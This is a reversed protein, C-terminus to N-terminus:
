ILYQILIPIARYLLVAVFCVLYTPLLWPRKKQMTSDLQSVGMSLLLWAFGDVNAIMYTVFCFILLLENRYNDLRWATKLKIPWTSLWLFSVALLVNLSINWWAAIQALFKYQAPELMPPYSASNGNVQQQLQWFQEQTLGGVLHAFDEFRPDILMMVRFFTGDHYDPSLVLKWLAAFGFTLGILLRGNIALCPQTADPSNRGAYLSLAIALCWYCLLYAHNDPMPWDIIVRIATLLALGAWLQASRLLNPMMLGICALALILTQLLQSGVPRLLLDLLTLRLSLDVINLNSGKHHTAIV